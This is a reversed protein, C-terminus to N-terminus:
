SNIELFYDVIGQAIAQAKRAVIADDIMGALEGPNTMFGNEACIVPCVTQRAMYFPQWKTLTKTYIDTSQIRTMIKQSLRQSYPTFYLNWYGSVSSDSAYMNHHVSVCADPAAALLSVVREDTNLNTDDTRSMIVTAGTKLLEDRIAIALKLNLDEEEWKQGSADTAEAGGDIGGHGADVYIKVGTLDAGYANNSAAIKSPNLFQFCLQGNDNYYSHWGYFGGAKRLHLRLTYDAENQIIEASKFLPHDSGISLEGTFLTAYCFTIDVYTATLRSVSFDRNSGGDPNAYNQPAIDFYFPAKWLCDLTLVTHNDVVAFDAINIENHDPLQGEYQKTVQPWQVPPYIKRKVYVRQGSRLQVYSFEGGADIIKYYDVTGQPLYNNTPKSHDDTKGGDFTEASFQIIEAINGYGVDIYKGDSPTVPLSPATPPPTTETPQTTESPETSPESSPETAGTTQTAETNETHETAGTTETASSSPIGDTPNTQQDKGIQTSLVVLAVLIVSLVCVLVLLTQKTLKIPEKQSKRPQDMSAM